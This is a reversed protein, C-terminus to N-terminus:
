KADIQRNWGIQFINTLNSWKGLYPKFNFDKFGGGLEGIYATHIHGLTVGKFLRVYPVTGGFQM